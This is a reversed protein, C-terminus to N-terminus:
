LLLTNQTRTHTCIKDLQALRNSGERKSLLHEVVGRLGPVCACDQVTMGTGLSSILVLRTHLSRPLSQSIHTHSTDEPGLVLFFVVRSVLDSHCVKPWLQPQQSQGTRRCHETESCLPLTQHSTPCVFRVVTQFSPCMQVVFMRSRRQYILM